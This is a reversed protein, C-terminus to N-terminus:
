PPDITFYKRPRVLSVAWQDFFGETGLIASLTPPFLSWNAYFFWGITGWDLAASKGVTLQVPFQFAVHTGGSVRVNVPPQTERYPSFAMGLDNAVRRTFFCLPAASDVLAEGSFTRGSVTVTYDIVPLSVTRVNGSGTALRYERYPYRSSPMNGKGIELLFVPSRLPSLGLQHTVAM